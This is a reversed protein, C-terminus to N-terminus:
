STKAPAPPPPLRSLARQAILKAIYLSKPANNTQATILFMLNGHLVNLQHLDGGAWVAKEGVGPVEQIEGGALHKLFDRSAEMQRAAAKPSAASRVELKLIRPRSTSGANYSCVLPNRAGISMTSVSGGAYGLAENVPFLQCADIDATDFTPGKPEDSGSGCAILLGALMLAPLTKSLTM